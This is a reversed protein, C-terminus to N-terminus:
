VSIKDANDFAIGGGKVGAAFAAVEEAATIKGDTLTAGTYAALTTLGMGAKVYRKGWRKLNDTTSKDTDWIPKAVHKLIKKRGAKKDPTVKRNGLSNALNMSQLSQSGNTVNNTSGADNSNGSTNGDSADGNQQGAGNLPPINTGPQTDSQGDATTSSDQQQGGNIGQVEGPLAAQQEEMERARQEQAMRQQEQQERAQQERM